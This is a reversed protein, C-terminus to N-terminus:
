NAPLPSQVGAVIGLIQPLYIDMVALNQFVMNRFLLQSLGVDTVDIGTRFRVKLADFDMEFNGLSLDANIRALFELMVSVAVPPVPIPCISYFVVQDLEPLLRTYCMWSGNQGDYVTRLVSHPSTISEWGWGEDDFFGKVVEDISIPSDMPSAQTAEGSAEATSWLADAMETVLAAIAAVQAEYRPAPKEASLAERCQQLLPTAATLQWVDFLLLHRAVQDKMSSQDLRRGIHQLGAASKGHVDALDQRLNLQVAIPQGLSQLEPNAPFVGLAILGRYSNPSFTGRFCCVPAVGERFFAGLEADKLAFAQGSELRLAVDHGFRYFAQGM